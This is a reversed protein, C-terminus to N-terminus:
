RRKRIFDLMMTREDGSLGATLVLLLTLAPVIVCGAVHYIIGSTNNVATYAAVAAVTTILTAPLVLSRVYRALSFPKYYRRLCMLRVVHSVACTSIMSVFAWMAPLGAKFFAYTLPLCLLSAAEVPVFYQRVYGSAQMIVTIPNNMALCIGYIIILRTFVTMGETADHLWLKLINDTEYIIPCAIIMLVYFIFKNSIDFLRNLYTFNKEAYAQIMAPRLALVMSNCLANFANNIQIAVAFAANAAPGFFINLMITNGQFTGVKAVSGLLTWGSFSLLEKLLPMNRTKRLRCEPFVATGYAAYCVLVVLGTCALALSYFILNDAAVVCILMASALKLLCDATSIFAYVNMKEHAFIASSFPIQLMTLFFTALSAHFCWEAAEARSEPICLQTHLMWLGATEMIIFMIAAAVVITIMGLTFIENLRRNDRKGIAVSYFRQVSLEMVGNIFSTLTVVGAIANFIGYDEIGLRDLVIRVTYLNVLMVVFMRVFLIATNAAIRRSKISNDSSMQRPKVNM